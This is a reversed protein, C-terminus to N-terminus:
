EAAVSIARLPSEDSAPPTTIGMNIHARVRQLLEEEEFPKALYDDCRVMSCRIHDLVNASFLIVPIDQTDPHSKILKCLTYGGMRPMRIDLLILNPFGDILKKTADIGDAATWVTYGADELLIRTMKRITPSDDVVLITGGAQNGLQKTPAIGRAVRIEEDITQVKQALATLEQSIEDETIEQEPLELDQSAIAAAESAIDAVATPNNSEADNQDHNLATLLKDAVDMNAIIGDDANEAEAALQDVDDEVVATKPDATEVVEDSVETQELTSGSDKILGSIDLVEQPPRDVPTSANLEEFVATQTNEDTTAEPEAQSTADETAEALEEIEDGPTTTANLEESVVTQTDEDTTAELQTQSTADETAETLEEIEDDRTTANLEESAVTQTDEDTTAEPEAHCTADKTAETVEETEDDLTTANVEESVVTQTDEDTTAEPEAQSTADEADEALEEIEDAPTTANLEKSVVTQSDADTAEAELLTTDPDDSDNAREGSPPDQLALKLDDFPVTTLSDLVESSLQSKNSAEEDTYEEETSDPICEEEQETTAAEVISNNETEEVELPEATVQPEASMIEYDFQFKSFENAVELFKKALENDPSAALAEQLHEIAKEPSTQTWARWLWAEVMHPKVETLQEFQLRAIIGKDARAALVGEEVWNEIDM